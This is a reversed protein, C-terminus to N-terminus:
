TLARIENYGRRKREAASSWPWDEPKSALGAKVPNNEIYAIIRYFETEDRAWHDYSEDQWFSQGTRSLIKNAELASYGKLSQTIKELPIYEAQEASDDACVSTQAVKPTACVETQASSECVSTQAVKPQLFVHVHNPMVVYAWLHYMASYRQLLAEEVVAAVSGEKLWFPGSEAKDLLSDYLAFLKKFHRIKRQEDSENLQTVEQELLRRSEQIQEIASKPMSGYLRWTIFFTAGPPHWHPLNRRYFKGRKRAMGKHVETQATETACVETQATETACVKTQATEKVLLKRITEFFRPLSFSADSSVLELTYCLLRV